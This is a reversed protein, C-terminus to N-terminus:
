ESSRESLKRKKALWGGGESRPRGRLRMRKEAVLPADRAATSSAAEGFREKMFDHPTGGDLITPPDPVLEAELEAKVIRLQGIRQRAASEDLAYLVGQYREWYRGRADRFVIGVRQEMRHDFSFLQRGLPVVFPEAPPPPILNFESIEWFAPIAENDEPAYVYVWVLNIPLESANKVIVADHEVERLGEEGFQKRKVTKRTLWVAVKDAQERKSEEQLAEIQQRQLEIAESQRDNSQKAAVAARYAFFLAVSAVIWTIFEQVNGYDLHSIWHWLDVYWPFNIPASGTGLRGPLQM